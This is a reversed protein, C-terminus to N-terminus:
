ADSLHELLDAALGHLDKLAERVLVASDLVMALARDLDEADLLTQPDFDSQELGLSPLARDPTSDAPSLSGGERLIAFVDLTMSPILTPDIAKSLADYYEFWIRRIALATAEEPFRAAGYYAIAARLLERDDILSLDGGGSLEQFTTKTPRFPYMTGARKLLRLLTNADPLATEGRFMQLLSQAARATGDAFGIQYELNSVDASVDARLSEIYAQAKRRDLRRQNWNNVWLAVLIGVVVAVVEVLADALNM